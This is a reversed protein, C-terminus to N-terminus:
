LTKEKEPAPVKDSMSSDIVEYEDIYILKMLISRLVTVIFIGRYNELNFKDGKGKYITTVDALEIFEPIYNEDKVNNLLRLLSLKLNKGAIGDKFIENVWGHPDRAKDNKLSKLAKDLHTLTWPATISKQALKLRINFLETKLDKIEQFYEAFLTCM